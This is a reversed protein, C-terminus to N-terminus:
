PLRRSSQLLLHLEDLQSAPVVRNLDIRALAQVTQARRFPRLLRLAILLPAWPTGPLGVRRLDRRLGRGTRSVLRRVQPEAAGLQDAGSLQRGLRALLSRVLLVFLAVLGVLVALVKLGGLWCAVAIALIAVASWQVTNLVSRGLARTLLYQRLSAESDIRGPRPIGFRIAGAFPSGPPAAGFAGPGFGGGASGFGDGPAGSPHEGWVAREAPRGDHASWGSGAPRDPPPPAPETM